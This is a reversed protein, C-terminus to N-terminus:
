NVAKSLEAGAKFKVVNKAAIQIEKGTQPNRGTRASRKSISFSGFGVLSLRDGRKLAKMAAVTFGEIAREADATSLGRERGDRTEGALREADILVDANRCRSGARAGREDGEGPILDLGAAFEPCADFGVSSSDASGNDRGRKSRKLPRFAGFGSLAVSDGNELGKTTAHIFGNVAATAEDKSLGAESAMQEILEAKNMAAVQGPTVALALGFTTSLVAGNRLVTRRSLQNKTM